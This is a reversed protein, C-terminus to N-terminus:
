LDEDCCHPVSLLCRYYDRCLHWTLKTKSMLKKEKQFHQGPLIQPSWWKHLITVVPLHSIEHWCGSHMAILRLNLGWSSKIRFKQSIDTWQKLSCVEWTVLQIWSDWLSIHCDEKELLCVLLQTLSGTRGEHWFHVTFHLLPTCHRFLPEPQVM